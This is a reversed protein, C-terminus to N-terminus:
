TAYVGTKICTSFFCHPLGKYLRPVRLLITALNCIGFCEKLVATGINSHSRCFGWVQVRPLPPQETRLCGICIFLFVLMWHGKLFLSQNPFGCSHLKTERLRRPKFSKRGLRPIYSNWFYIPSVIFYSINRTPSIKKFFSAMVEFACSVKAKSAM